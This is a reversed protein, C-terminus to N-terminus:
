VLFSCRTSRQDTNVDVCLIDSATNKYGTWSLFGCGVLRRIVSRLLAGTDFFGWRGSSFNGRAVDSDNRGKLLISDITIAASEVECIRDRAYHSPDEYAYPDAYIHLSDTGTSPLSAVFQVNCPAHLTEM